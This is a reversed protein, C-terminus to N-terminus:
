VGGCGSKGNLYTESRNRRLALELIESVSVLLEKVRRSPVLGRPYAAGLFAVVQRGDRVSVEVWHDPGRESFLFSSRPVAPISDSMIFRRGARRERAFAIYNPGLSAHLLEIAIRLLERSPKARLMASALDYFTDDTEPARQVGISTLIRVLDPRVLRILEAREGSRAGLAGAVRLLTQVRVNRLRGSELGQYLSLSVGAKAAIDRQRRTGRLARFQARLAHVEPRGAEKM